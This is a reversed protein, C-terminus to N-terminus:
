DGMQGDGKVLDFFVLFSPKFECDLETVVTNSKTCMKGHNPNPNPIMLPMSCLKIKAGGKKLFTLGYFTTQLWPGGNGASKVNM